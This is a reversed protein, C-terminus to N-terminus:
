LATIPEDTKSAQLSVHLHIDKNIFTNYKINNTAINFDRRNIVIDAQAAFNDYNSKSVDVTFVLQKTVGHMTLNGLVTIFRHVAASKHNVSTIELRATPFKEADFFNDGKLNNELKQKDPAELDTVDISNMDIMVSGKSLQGCWLTLSGSRIKITGNHTGTTKEAKWGITSVSPDVKLVSVGGPKLYNTKHHNSIGTSGLMMMVILLTKM